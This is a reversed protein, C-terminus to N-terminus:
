GVETLRYKGDRRELWAARPRDDRGRGQGAKQWTLHDYDRLAFRDDDFFSLRAFAAIELAARVMGRLSAGPIVFPGGEGPRTSATTAARGTSSRRRSRSMSSHGAASCSGMAAAAPSATSRSAPRSM